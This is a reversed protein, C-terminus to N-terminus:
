RIPIERKYNFMLFDTKYLDYLKEIDAADLLSFYKEYIDPSDNPNVNERRPKIVTEAKMMEVFMQEEEQINEFHIVYNYRILCLHCYDSVPRWHEDFFMKRDASALIWQVFEWWSPLEARRGGM